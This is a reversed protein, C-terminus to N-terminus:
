TNGPFGIQVKSRRPPRLLRLFIFRSSSRVEPTLAPGFTEYLSLMQNSLSLYRIFFFLLSPLASLGKRRWMYEIEDPLTLLYDYSLIATRWAASYPWLPYALNRVRPFLFSHRRWGGIRPSASGLCGVRLHSDVSETDKGLSSTAVMRWLVLLSASAGTSGALVLLFFAQSCHGSRPVNM